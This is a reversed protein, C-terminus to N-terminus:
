LKTITVITFLAVIGSPTVAVALPQVPNHWFFGAHINGGQQRRSVKTLQAALAFRAQGFPVKMM